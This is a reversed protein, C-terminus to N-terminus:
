KNWTLKQEDNYIMKKNEFLWQVVKIIKHEEYNIKDVLDNLLCPELTVVNKIENLIIDFEYKNLSLDNRRVCVDCSGCRDVDDQGFYALLQQSRCKNTSTAYNLMAEMRQLTREKREALDNKNFLIAKNELRESAFHILPKNIRPIYTIIKFQQLVKLLNIIIETTTGAKRALYEESINIFDNFIGTYTRLLMKIFSDLKENEVQFRYLDERNVIFMIRSTSNTDEAYSILGTSELIKLSNYTTIVDIKFNKAFDFIDFPFESDKAAGYSIQLYNCISNYVELVKKLEPFSTTINKKIQAKDANNTVLFAWAKKGDRGARGAEQFYAEPSDPLDLHVVLRVDPKDIGMGFANTCVMIRIDGKQWASQKRARDQADIGAHYYDASIKYKQLLMAYEKTKRRNRVYIVASGDIKTVLKFLQKEKDETNIVYYVLNKREFSKQLVNKEKFLLKAQIDEVVKPTATATLALIPVDPLQKRIEAIELYAPRFDYGWQSICHAEDVTILNVTMSKLREQFYFNKLREPSLYLFKYDGYCVNNLAREIEGKTMGSYIAVAKIKRKELNEVQDKMLAILPTVVLCVGPNAMSFTQFTISKGGGTPLLGLTDKGAAVSEVIDEQMDRFKDYGWYKLLIERYKSM